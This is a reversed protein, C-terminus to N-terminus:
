GRRFRMRACVQDPSYPLAEYGGGPLMDFGIEQKLGVIQVTGDPARYVGMVVPGGPPCIFVGRHEQARAGYLTPQEEGFLGMIQALPGGPAQAMLHTPAHNSEDFSMVRGDSSRLRMIILPDDQGGGGMPATVSMTLSDGVILATAADAPVLTTTRTETPSACGNLAIVTALVALRMGM